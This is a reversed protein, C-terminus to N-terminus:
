NCKYRILTGPGYGCKIKEHKSPNSNYEHEWERWNCENVFNQMWTLSGTIPTPPTLQERILARGAEFARLKLSHAEFLFTSIKQDLGSPLAFFLRGMDIGLQKANLIGSIRAKTQEIQDPISKNWPNLAKFHDNYFTESFEINAGLLLVLKEAIDQNERNWACMLLTSDYVIQNINAGAKILTAALSFNANIFNDNLNLALYLATWGGEAVIDFDIKPHKILFNVLAIHKYSTAIMLPTWAPHSHPIARHNKLLKINVDINNSELIAKVTKLNGAECAEYLKELTEVPVKIKSNQTFM